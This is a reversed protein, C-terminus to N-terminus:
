PRSSVPMYCSLMEVIEEADVVGITSRGHESVVIVVGVVVPMVLAV